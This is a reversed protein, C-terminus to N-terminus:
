RRSRRSTYTRSGVGAMHLAIALLGAVILVQDSIVSLSLHALEFLLALGFLVAAVIALVPAGEV